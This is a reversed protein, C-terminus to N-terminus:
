PQVSTVCPKTRWCRCSSLDECRATRFVLSIRTTHHWVVTTRLFFAAPHKNNQASRLSKGVASPWRQIPVRAVSCVTIRPPRQKKTYHNIIHDCWGGMAADHMMMAYLVISWGHGILIGSPPEHDLYITMGRWNQVTKSSATVYLKYREEDYIFM